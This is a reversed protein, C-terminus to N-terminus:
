IWKQEYSRGIKEGIKSPPLKISTAKAFCEFGQEDDCLECLSHRCVIREQECGDCLRKGQPIGSM